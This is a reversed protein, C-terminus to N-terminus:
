GDVRGRFPRPASVLPAPATPALSTVANELRQAAAILRSVLEAITQNM